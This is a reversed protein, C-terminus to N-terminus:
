DLGTKHLTQGILTAVKISTNYFLSKLCSNSTYIRKVPLLLLNPKTQKPKTEM